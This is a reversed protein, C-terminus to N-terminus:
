EMIEEKINRQMAQKIDKLFCLQNDENNKVCYINYLM